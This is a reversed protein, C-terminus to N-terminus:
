TLYNLIESTTMYSEETVAPKEMSKLLMENEVTQVQFGESEQHLEVIEEENFWYNFSALHPCEKIYTDYSRRYKVRSITILYNM